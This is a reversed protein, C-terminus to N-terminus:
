QGTPSDQIIAYPAAVSQWAPCDEEYLKKIWRFYVWFIDLGQIM